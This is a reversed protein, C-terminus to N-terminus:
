PLPDHPYTLAGNEVLERLAEAAKAASRSRHSVRNKEELSLEAVTRGLEPLWFVPDYGFGEAGNPVLAITGRCEGEVVRRVGVPSAIAIVSRFRAGRCEWPVNRLKSLLYQVREADTADVGAYRRSYVGPEGSLADIELGSDEALAWLGILRAYMVAKLSANEEFTTGTEEVDQTIHADRLSVLRVPVDKLLQKFERVKGENTTAILLIPKKSKPDQM